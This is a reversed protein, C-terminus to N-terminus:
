RTVVRYNLAGGSSVRYRQLGYGKEAAIGSRPNGHNMFVDFTSECSPCRAYIEGNPIELRIDRRAEVPCALDFAELNGMVDTVLLIGGFGTRDLDTYPFDAPVKVTNTRFYRNYGAADAKVGHLNWDGVTHFTLRVESYPIRDDDVSECAALCVTVTLLLIRFARLSLKLM